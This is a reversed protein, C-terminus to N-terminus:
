MMKVLDGVLSEVNVAEVVEEEEESALEVETAKSMVNIRRHKLCLYRKGQDPREFDWSTKRMACVVHVVQHCRNNFCYVTAGSKQCVSCRTQTAGKVTECVNYWRGEEEEVKPSYGACNDHIWFHKRTRCNFFAGVLRGQQLLLLFLYFKM